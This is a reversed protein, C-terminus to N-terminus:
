LELEVFIEGRYDLFEVLKLFEHNHSRSNDCILRFSGAEGERKQQLIETYKTAIIEKEQM